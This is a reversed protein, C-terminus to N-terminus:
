EKGSARRLWAIMQRLAEYAKLRAADTGAAEAKRVHEEMQLLVIPTMQLLAEGASAAWKVLVYRILCPTPIGTAKSLNEVTPMPDVVTYNAVEAKFNAHPDDTDWQDHYPPLRLSHTKEPM